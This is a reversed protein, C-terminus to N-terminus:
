LLSRVEGFFEGKQHPNEGYRLVKGDSISEKYASVETSEAFYNFIASDYHSSVNFAQHLAQGMQRQITRVM